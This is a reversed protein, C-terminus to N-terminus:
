KNDIINFGMLRGSGKLRFTEKIEGTQPNYQYAGSFNETTNNSIFYISGKHIFPNQYSYFNDPLMNLRAAKKTNVDIETWYWIDQRYSVGHQGGGYYSTPRGSVTTYIKNNHAFIRNFDSPYQYDSIKLEFNTDFTNEGNKIRLIKSEPSQTRMDGIAIIYLDKTVEDISWLVHDAFLGLNTVGNYSTVGVITNATLDYVAIEAKQANPTVQWASGRTGHQIDVYLKNDRKALILQGAAEYASGDSLSSFDIEGTRQMTSPNFKQVKLGGASLDWYYGETESVVLFNTEYTNNPTSIFGDPSFKGSELKYKSIGIDSAASGDKKYLINGAVRGGASYGLQYFPIASLDIERSKNDGLAYIGGAWKETGNFLVWTEDKPLIDTNESPNPDAVDTDDSKCSFLLSTSLLAAAILKLSTKKM